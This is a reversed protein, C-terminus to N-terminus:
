IWKLWSYHTIGALQLWSIVILYDRFYEIMADYGLWLLINFVHNWIEEDEYWEDVLVFKFKILFVQSPWDWNIIQWHERIIDRSKEFNKSHEELFLENALSLIRCIIFFVINHDGKQQLFTDLCPKSFVWYAM